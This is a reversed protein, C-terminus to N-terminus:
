PTVQVDLSVQYPGLEPMGFIKESLKEGDAVSRAKVRVSLSKDSEATVEVSKALTGCSAMIQQRLRGADPASRVVPAVPKPPAPPASVKAVPEPDKEEDDLLILGSTVYAGGPAAKATPEAVPKRPDAPMSVPLVPLKPTAPGAKSTAKGPVDLPKASTSTAPKDGGREMGSMPTYGPLPMSYKDKAMGTSMAGRAPELKPSLAVTQTPMGASMRGAPPTAGPEHAAVETPVMLSGDASVLTYSKGDREMTSVTLQNTVQSCGRVKRLANSVALKVEFSPVSGTVTVQGYGEAQIEFSRAHDPLKEALIEKAAAKLEEAPRGVSRLVLGPHIQLNDTVDM